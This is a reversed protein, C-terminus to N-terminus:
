ATKRRRQWILAGAGAGLLGLGVLVPVLINAGTDPLDDGPAPPTTAPPTTPVPATTTTTEVPPATTTTTVPPTTVPTTWTGKAGAEAKTENSEAVILSQAPGQHKGNDHYGDVVFLRGIDVKAVTRLAFEVTAPETGAAVNLFLKTGDAIEEASLAKKNEDVLEVGEPLEAVVETIKGNTKVTFPGLLGGSEGTVEAPNIELVPKPQEALDQANKVLHNYLAKIDQNADERDSANDQNLNVGDSFHWIAAQTASIAEHQELGDAAYGLELANLDALSKFPFGNHLVWNIKGRNQHFPSEANPYEDWPNEVMDRKETAGVKIEVCYVKLLAGSDLKLHLLSAQYTKDSGVMRVGVGEDKAGTLRGRAAEAAAPLAATGVLVATVAFAAGVRGLKGM